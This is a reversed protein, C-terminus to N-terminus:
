RGISIAPELAAGAGLVGLVQGFGALECSGDPAQDGVREGVVLALHQERQRDVLDRGALQGKLEVGRRAGEVLCQVVRAGLEALRQGFVVGRIECRCGAAGGTM